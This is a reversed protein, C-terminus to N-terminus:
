HESHQVLFNYFSAVEGNRVNPGIMEESNDQIVREGYFPSEKTNMYAQEFLERFSKESYFKGAANLKSRSTIWLTNDDSTRFCNIMFGEHFEQCIVGADEVEQLTNFPFDGGTAKPPAVSMPRNLDTNWVVSRFWRTHPVDMKSVGKEYRVLCMNKGSDVIKLFGGEESELYARLENWTSYKEVLERFLNNEFSFSM